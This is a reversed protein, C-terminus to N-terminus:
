YEDVSATAGLHGRRSTGKRNRDHYMNAHGVVPVGVLIEGAIDPKSKPARRKPYLAALADIRATWPRWGALQPSACRCLPRVGALTYGDTYRSHVAEHLQDMGRPAAFPLDPANM